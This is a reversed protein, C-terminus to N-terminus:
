NYREWWSVLLQSPYDYISNDMYSFKIIKGKKIRSEMIKRM